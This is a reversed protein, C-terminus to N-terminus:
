QRQHHGFLRVRRTASIKGALRSETREGIDGPSDWRYSTVPCNDISPFPDAVFPDGDTCFRLVEDSERKDRNRGVVGLTTEQVETMPTDMVKVMPSEPLVDNYPNKENKARHWGLVVDIETKNKDFKSVWRVSTDTTIGEGRTMGSTPTGDLTVLDVSSYTAGNLGVPGADVDRLAERVVGFCLLGM